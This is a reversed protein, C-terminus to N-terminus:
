NMPIIDLTHCFIHVWEPQPETGWAKTWRALHNCRDDKGSYNETVQTNDYEFRLRMMRRYEKWGAFIEKHTGWWRSPTAGLALELAQFRHEELVESEFEDLFIDVTTLGDYHPLKREETSVCRLSITMM